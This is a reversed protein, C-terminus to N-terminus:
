FKGGMKRRKELEEASNNLNYNVGWEEHTKSTYGKTESPKNLKDIPVDGKCVTGKLESTCSRIEDDPKHNIRDIKSTESVRWRITAILISGGIFMVVIGISTASLENGFLKMTILGSATIDKYIM